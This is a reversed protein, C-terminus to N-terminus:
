CDKAIEQAIQYYNELQDQSPSFAQAIAEHCSTLGSNVLAQDINSPVKPFWGFAGFGLGKKGKVKAAKLHTLFAGISYSIENNYTGSGVCVVEADMLERFVISSRTNSLKYVKVEMGADGFGEALAEAMDQTHKWVSEYVIVAKRKCKSDAFGQYAELIDPIYKRWIIGHAPMIDEIELNMSLILNLKAKVQTTYSLVINAFYEKAQEICYNKDLNEDTLQYNVIHQGFADNSFVTKLEPCYTLMNDPWHIMQMEVFTFNYKGTCLTDNTKLPNMPFDPHFQTTVNRVCGQSAYVTANPYAAKIKMLGGSHDPEAHQLIINDLPQDKLVSQIRELCDSTFEEEVTDILTTQEDLILYANYTTGEEIPYLEGHFNRCNLDRAGVWYVNEKLKTAKKM